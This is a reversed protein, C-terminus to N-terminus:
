EVVFNLKIKLNLNHDPKGQIRLPMFISIYKGSLAKAEEPEEPLFPERSWSSGNWSVADTPVLIDSINAGPPIVVSGQPQDKAILKTGAHMVQHAKGSPDVISVSDWELTVPVDQLNFMTFRIERISPDLAVKVFRDSYELSGDPLSFVLGYVSLATKIAALMSEPDKVNNLRIIGDEKSSGQVQRNDGVHVLQCEDFCTVSILFTDGNWAFDKVHVKQGEKIRWSSAGACDAQVKLIREHGILAKAFDPLVPQALAFVSFGLLALVCFMSQM